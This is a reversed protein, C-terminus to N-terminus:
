CNLRQLVENWINSIRGFFEEKQFKGDADTYINSLVLLSNSNQDHSLVFNHYAKTPTDSAGGVANM